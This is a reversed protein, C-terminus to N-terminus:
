LHDNRPWPALIWCLSYLMLLVGFCGRAGRGCLDANSQGYQNASLGPPLRLTKGHGTPWVPQM